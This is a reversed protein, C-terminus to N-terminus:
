HAPSTTAGVDAANKFKLVDLKGVLERFVIAGDVWRHSPEGALTGL